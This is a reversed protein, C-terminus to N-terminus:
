RWCTKNGRAKSTGSRMHAGGYAHWFFAVGPCRVVLVLV